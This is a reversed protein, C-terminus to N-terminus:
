VSDDQPDIMTALRAVSLSLYQFNNSLLTAADSLFSLIISSIIVGKGTIHKVVTSNRDSAM